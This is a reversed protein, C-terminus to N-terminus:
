VGDVADRAGSAFNVNVQEAPTGSQTLVSGGNATITLKDSSVTLAGGTFNSFDLKDTGGDTNVTFAGGSVPLSFSAANDTFTDNGSGTHVTFNKLSSAALGDSSVTVSDAGTTASADLTVTPINFFTTPVISVGSTGSV